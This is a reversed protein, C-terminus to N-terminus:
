LAMHGILKLFSLVTYCPQGRELEQPIPPGFHRIIIGSPLEKYPHLPPAYIHRSGLEAKGGYLYLYFKAAINQKRIREKQLYCSLLITQTLLLSKSLVPTSVFLYDFFLIINM